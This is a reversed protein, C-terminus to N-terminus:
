SPGPPCSEPGIGLERAKELFLRRTETLAQPIVRANGIVAMYNMDGGWRPVIHMHMHDPVGAGACHGLNMGINFGQAGLAAQLVRKVDRTRQMLELLVDDDFDEPAPRHEAPAVLIHGSTYPYLNMIALMRETRWLVHNQEDQAPDEYARCLFCGANDQGLNAIYEMRWPAWLNQHEEPM